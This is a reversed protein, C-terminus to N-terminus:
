KSVTVLFTLKKRWAKVTAEGEMGLWEELVDPDIEPHFQVGLTRGMVFAQSAIQTRAIETGGKPVSWRDWHYEFWPGTPILTKD